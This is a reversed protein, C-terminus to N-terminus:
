GLSISEAVDVLDDATLLDDGRAVLLLVGRDTEVAVTRRVVTGTAPDAADVVVGRWTVDEVPGIERTVVSDRADPTTRRPQRTETAVVAPDLHGPPLAMVVLSGDCGDACRWVGVQASPPGPVPGDEDAPLGAALAVVGDLSLGGVVELGAPPRPVVPPGDPELPAEAATAVELLDDGTADRAWAQIDGEVIRAWPQDDTAAVVTDDIGAPAPEVFVVGRGVPDGGPALVTVPRHDPGPEAQGPGAVVPEYGAPVDGVTLAVPGGTADPPATSTTTSTTPAARAVVDTDIGCGALLIPVVLLPVTLSRRM